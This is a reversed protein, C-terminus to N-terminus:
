DSPTFTCTLQGDEIQRISDPKCIDTAFKATADSRYSADWTMNEVHFLIHSASSAIGEDVHSGTGSFSYQVLFPEGRQMADLACKSHQANEDPVAARGCDVAHSGAAKLLRNHVIVDGPQDHCGALFATTLLLLLTRPIM